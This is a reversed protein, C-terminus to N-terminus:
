GAASSELPAGPVTEGRMLDALTLSEILLLYNAFVSGFVERIRCTEEDSCDRCRQYAGRSVCALPAMPGDVLRLIAAISITEPPKILVYGGVRGRRSGILGGRKIELLIHELFRKPTDSRAAIGEITMSGGGRAQEEALLVLAKLAYKTKLSIM